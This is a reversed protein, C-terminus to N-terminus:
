HKVMGSLANSLGDDDLPAAPPPAAKTRAKTKPSNSDAARPAAPRAPPLGGFGVFKQLQFLAKLRGSESSKRSEVIGKLKAILYEREVTVIPPAKSRTKRDCNNGPQQPAPEAPDSGSLEKLLTRINPHKLLRSGASKATRESFGAHIAAAKADPKVLYELAFARQRRTIKSM